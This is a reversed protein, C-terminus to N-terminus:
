AKAVSAVIVESVRVVRWAGPGTSALDEMKRVAQSEREYNDLFAWYSGRKELLAYRETYNV